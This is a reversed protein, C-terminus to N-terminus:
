SLKMEKVLLGGGPLVRAGNIWGDQHLTSLQILVANSVSLLRMRLDTKVRM